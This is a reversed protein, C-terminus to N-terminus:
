PSAEAAEQQRATDCASGANLARKALGEAVVSAGGTSIAAGIALGSKLLGGADAAPSPSALTGGLKLFKVLSGVNIGVGSKANPAFTINLTEEGLDVDGNGIIEMKTTELVLQNNTKLVGAEADFLVLACQLETTPDQKAFPNLKNITEMLLDSGALEIFDNMLTAEEVLILVKGALASALAHTSNGSTSLDLDVELAGGRLEEQPVFGFSELAVGDVTLRLSADIPRPAQSAEAEGTSSGGSALALGVAGEFGGNGLTASFPEITLRSADNQARIRLAQFQAEQLRLEAANLSVDIEATELWSWDVPEDSFVKEPAASEAATDASADSGEAAADVQPEGDTPQDAAAARDSGEAGATVLPLYLRSANLDAVLKLPESLKATASGTLANSPSSLELDSLAVEGAQLSLVTSLKLPFLDQAQYPAISISSPLGNSDIRIKGQWDAQGANADSTVVLKTDGATLTMDVDLGSAVQSATGSAMVKLAESWGPGLYEGGLENVVLRDSANEPVVSVQGALNDVRHTQAGTVVEIWGTAVNLDLKGASAFGGRLEAVATPAEPATPTAALKLEFGLDEASRNLLGTLEVRTNAADASALLEIEQGDQVATLQAEVPAPGAVTLTGIRLKNFTLYPMVDILGVSGAEGPVPDIPHQEVHVREAEIQWFPQDSWWASIHLAASAEEVAIDQADMAVNIRAASLALPLFTVALGDAEVQAASQVQNVGGILWGPRFRVCLLVVVLLLLLVAFLYGASKLVLKM